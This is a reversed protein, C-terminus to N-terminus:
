PKPLKDEHRKTENPLTPRVKPARWYCGSGSLSWFSTNSRQILKLTLKGRATNWHQYWERTEAILNNSM